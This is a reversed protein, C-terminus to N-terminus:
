EARDNTDDSAAANCWDHRSIRYHDLHHVEGLTRNYHMGSKWFRANCKEIVRKSNRNEKRASIMLCDRDTVKFFLDIMATTAETAYGSGWHAEGLWYGVFPLEFRQPDEHIGCIGMFLGDESRTIAYVCDGRAPDQVKEIFELADEAFYPHPMASLMSAVAYNNALRAIDPADEKLLPRLLLRPSTLVPCQLTLSAPILGTEIPKRELVM